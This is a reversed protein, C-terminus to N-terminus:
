PELLQILQDLKARPGIAILTDGLLIHTDPPPNFLMQGDARKIAVIILGLKQRIGSDKLPRGIIESTGGVPIEELTLDVEGHMAIEIFNVVNPRLITQALRYGGLMYPSVVKDAGARLLKQESGEEGARAVILLGPNLTRATLIIYVNDADSSVVAVLGRAQTVGAVQLIEEDSADGELYLYGGRELKAIAEPRNEIVVLPIGAQRLEKAIVEGIRGYGCVIYHNKLSHIEKEVKRRGLVDRIQGEVIVQAWYGVMYLMFGTGTFILVMTFARGARSLPRVEGYGVTTLTIVTMYLGEFFNWGEILAYGLSGLAIIFCLVALGFLARKFVTM